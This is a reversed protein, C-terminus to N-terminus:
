PMNHHLLRFYNKEPTHIIHIRSFCAFPVDFRNMEKVPMGLVYVLLARMVGGHSILLSHQGACQTLVNEFAMVVRHYFVDAAEGNPPPCAVPDQGWAEVSSQEKQWVEDINRGEWDGFSIERLNKEVTIPLHEHEALSRAFDACRILPSCIIQQWPSKYKEIRQQMQQRGFENLAVDISGRYCHGGECEGHRLLDVYSTQVNDKKREKEIM